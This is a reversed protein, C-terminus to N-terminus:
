PVVEKKKISRKPRKSIVQKSLYKTKYARIYESIGAEEEKTLLRSKIVFDIGDPEKIHGM